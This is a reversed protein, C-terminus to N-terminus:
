QNDINGFDVIEGTQSVLYYNPPIQIKFEGYYLSIEPSTQSSDVIGLKELGPIEQSSITWYLKGTYGDFMELQSQNNVSNKIILYDGDSYLIVADNSFPTAVLRDFNPIQYGSAADYGIYKQNNQKILVVNSDNPDHNQTLFTAKYLYRNQQNNNPYLVFATRAYPQNSSTQIDQDTKLLSENSNDDNTGSLSESLNITQDVYNANAKNSYLIMTVYLLSFFVLALLSFKLTGKLNLLFNNGACIISPQAHCEALFCHCHQCGNIPDSISIINDHSCQPCKIVKKQNDM